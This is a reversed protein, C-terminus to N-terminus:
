EYEDSEMKHRCPDFNTWTSLGQKYPFDFLKGSKHYLSSSQTITKKYNVYVNLLKLGHHFGQSQPFELFKELSTELSVDLKYKSKFM